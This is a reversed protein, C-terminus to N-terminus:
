QDSSNSAPNTRSDVKSKNGVSVNTAKVEEINFNSVNTVFTSEQAEFQELDIKHVKLFSGLARLLTHEALLIFTWEDQALFYHLRRIGVASERISQLSGYDFVYGHQIAYAQRKTRMHGLLPMLAYRGVQIPCSLLSPVAFYIGCWASNGVQRIRPLEYVKDISLFADRLPPLVQFRWEVHLSGRAQVARAFLSVVLQGKWSAMEACVYTRAAPTPHVAGHRLLNPGASASPPHLEDPLIGPSSGVHQGNVFLREEVRLDPLGMGDLAKELAAHLEPNTFPIPRQRKGNKGQKGRHVNIVVRSYRVRRGSGVFASRGRFVVLNGGQRDAVDALRREIRPSRSLPASAPDFRDRLMQRAIIQHDQVWRERAVILMALVLMVALPIWTWFLLSTITGLVLLPLLVADRLARRRLAALAWRAVVVVDAGAAPAIARFPEGVIRRVVLRAYRLDFQTAAALYRTTEWDVEQKAEETRFASGLRPGAHGNLSPAAQHEADGDRCASSMARM